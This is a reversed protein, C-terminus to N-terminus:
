EVVRLSPVAGRAHKNLAERFSRIYGAFLDELVGNSTILVAGIASKSRNLYGAECLVQIGGRCTEASMYEVLFRALDSQSLRIGKPGCNMELRQLNDDTNFMAGELRQPQIGLREREDRDELLDRINQNHALAFNRLKEPTDIKFVKLLYFFHALAYVTEQRLESVEVGSEPRRNDVVEDFFRAKASFMEEFLALDAELEAAPQKDIDIRM